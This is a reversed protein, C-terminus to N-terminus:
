VFFYSSNFCPFFKSSKGLGKLLPNVVFPNDQFPEDKSADPIILTGDHNIAHACFSVERPTESIDLGYRSKFWQRDKDVLTILCVPVDCLLAALRTIQDYSDEIASDLIRLDRLVALRTNENKPIPPTKM